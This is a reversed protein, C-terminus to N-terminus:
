DGEGEMNGFKTARTVYHTDACNPCKVSFSHKWPPVDDCNPGACFWVVQPLRREGGM